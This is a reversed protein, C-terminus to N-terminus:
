SEKRGLEKREGGKGAREVSHRDLSTAYGGFPEVKTDHNYRIYIIKQHRRM